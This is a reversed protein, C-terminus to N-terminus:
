VILSNGEFDFVEFDVVDLEISDIESRKEEPIRLVTLMWDWENVEENKNFFREELKIRM